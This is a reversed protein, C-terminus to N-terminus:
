LDRRAAKGCRARGRTVRAGADPLALQARDTTAATCLAGPHRQVAGLPAHPAAGETAAGLAVMARRRLPVKHHQGFQRHHRLLRLTGGPGSGALPEPGGGPRAQAEEDGRSAGQAQPDDADTADQASGHVRGEPDRWLLAHVRSLRLDRPAGGRAPTPEGCCVTWVRGAPDQGRAPQARVQRAPGAPRGADPACGGAGRLPAPLRRCVPCPPRAAKSRAAAVAGGLPRPRLAPLHQGAAPQDRRGCDQLVQDGAPDRSGPGPPSPAVRFVVNVDERDIEVRKVLMRILDRQVSWDIDAMRDRIKQAFDELRGIILTLAARQAAEDRLAAAQEEWGQIRQRLGAIRPEFEAKDILGEAYGDILRGMGRRLKAIQSEIGVLAGPDRERALRREYEAAIWSPDQLLREVEGWVALDLRDTRVQPNACLREGGFRYADSGCCRYYAYARRKGKASRLSIAKGYYAYGCQQCVVLGQLLYRQGRAHQRNRRRNEVLQERAAEFLAEEVLPPVPVSIWEGPAVDYVGHARRPQESGGRVPRLRAPMPGIRTKGFAATGAYAPNKLIGWVTSRDWAPKGSRTRIGEQQLRRCVEGISIRERGIWAFIRRVIRAEDELIEYRAVGGDRKGVYRYGYPAGSLVSVAGQRAAHRKGRRSRELIKAQEYEAVMGQVQLLLDDEPSLGIPRNLFVIEVGARHFEDILLVQYAYRRALRDPSHVYLRDLNGAAVADRLRELAPRVLTAGSYGEDAFRGEPTLCLGDQTLRAELAAIQSDITNSTAQQESSVRAYIAVCLPTMGMGEEHARGDRAHDRM